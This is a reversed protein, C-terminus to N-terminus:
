FEAALLKFEELSPMPRNTHYEVLSEKLNLKVALNKCFLVEKHHVIGDAHMMQLAWYLVELKNELHSFDSFKVPENFDVNDSTLGNQNAIKKLLDHESKEFKGDIKALHALLNLQRKIITEM